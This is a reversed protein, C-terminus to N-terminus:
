AFLRAVAMGFGPLLGCALTDGPQLTELLVLQNGQREYVEVRERKWDIIWYILVGRM